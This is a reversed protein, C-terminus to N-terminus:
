LWCGEADMLLVHYGGPRTRETRGRRLGFDAVDVQQFVRGKTVSTDTAEGLM